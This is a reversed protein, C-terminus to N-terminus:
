TRCVATLSVDCLCRCLSVPFQSNLLIPPLSITFICELQVRPTKHLRVFSRTVTVDSIYTRVHNGATPVCPVCVVTQWFLIDTPLDYWVGLKCCSCRICPLWYSQNISQNIPWIISFPAVPVVVRGFFEFITRYFRYVNKVFCDHSCNLGIYLTIQKRNQRLNLQNKFFHCFDSPAM